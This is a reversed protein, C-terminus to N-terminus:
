KKSTARLVLLMRVAAPIPEVIPVSLSIALARAVSALPGGGIVIAEAGDDYIAQRCALLMEAELQMPDSMLEIPDGKTIRVSRCQSGLKYRDATRLIERELDPTTTVVSFRRGGQAAEAMGAQAIGVVPCTLLRSLEFLGPDGFAAIIVGMPRSQLMVPGLALVAEAAMQLGSENCILPQGFEATLGDIVARQKASDRAIALMAQTTGSNTNPNILTLRM